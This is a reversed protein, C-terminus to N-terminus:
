EEVPWYSPLRQIVLGAFDCIKAEAAGVLEDPVQM